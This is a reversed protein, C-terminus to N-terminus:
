IPTGIEVAWMSVPLPAPCWTFLGVSNANRVALRLYIDVQPADVPVTLATAQPIHSIFPSM